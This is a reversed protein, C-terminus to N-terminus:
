QMVIWDALAAYAYNCIIVVLYAKPDLSLLIRKQSIHTTSNTYVTPMQQVVISYQLVSLFFPQQESGAIFMNMLIVFALSILAVLTMLEKITVSIRVSISM